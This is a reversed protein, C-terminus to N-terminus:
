RCMVKLKRGGWLPHPWLFIPDKPAFAEWTVSLAAPWASHQSWSFPAPTAAHECNHPQPHAQVRGRGRWTSRNVSHTAHVRVGGGWSSSSGAPIYGVREQIGQIGMPQSPYIILRLLWGAPPSTQLPWHHFRSPPLNSPQHNPPTPTPAPTKNAPFHPQARPPTAEPEASCPWLDSNLTSARAGGEVMNQTPNDGTMFFWDLKNEFINIPLFWLVYNYKRVSLCSLLMKLYMNWFIFGDWYFTNILLNQDTM